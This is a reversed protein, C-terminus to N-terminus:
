EVARYTEVIETAEVSFTKNPWPVALISFDSINVTCSVKVTVHGGHDFDTGATSVSPTECHRGSDGLNANATREAITNVSGRYQALSGQRAAERAAVTVDGYAAAVRGGLVILEAFMMVIALVMIVSAPSAGREDAVHPREPRPMESPTM